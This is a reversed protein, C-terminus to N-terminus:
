VPAGVTVFFPAADAEVDGDSTVRRRWPRGPPIPTLRPGAVEFAGVFLYHCVEDVVSGFFRFRQVVASGRGAAKAM